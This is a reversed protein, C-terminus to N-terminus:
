NHVATWDYTPYNSTAEFSYIQITFGTNTKNTVTYSTRAWGSGNFTSTINISYDSDSFGELFTVDLSQERNAAGKQSFTVSGTKTKSDIEAKTKAASWVNGTTTRTDDIVDEEPEAYNTAKIIFDQAIAAMQVTNSKGYVKTSEDIKLNGDTDTEGDAADLEIAFYEGSATSSRVNAAGVKGGKKFAGINAATYKSAYDDIGFVGTINPLGAAILENLNGNAGQPVRDRYDPVKFSSADLIYIAPLKAYLEPYDAKLYTSGDCKLFGAPVVNCPNLIVTGIPLGAGLGVYLGDAKRELANGEDESIATKSDVESKTYYDSLDVSSGIPIFTEGDWCYNSSETTVNWVDGTTNGTEPLDAFTSVSGKFTMTKIDCSIVGDASITINYGETLKKQVVDLMNVKIVNGAEDLSLVMSGTLTEETTNQLKLVTDVIVEANNKPKIANARGEVTEWKATGATVDIPILKGQANYGVAKDSEIVEANPLSNVQVNEAEFDNHLYNLETQLDGINQTLTKIKDELQRIKVESTENGLTPNNKFEM